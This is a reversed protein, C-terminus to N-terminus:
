AEDGTDVVRGRVAGDALLETIAAPSYGAERLLEATHEAVLPAPRRVSAPTDSFVVPPAVERYTGVVPHQVERIVHRHRDPDEVIEDLTPVPSAPIGHEECLALWEATTREEVIRALDGYVRDASRLRTPHDTFWPQDLLEQRGVAIFLSHWHADTYPMMAIFGDRTRQPGRHRTLIRSYGAREGPTAARSLHEVLNFALVADVM